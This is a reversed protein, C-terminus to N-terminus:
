RLTCTPVNDSEGYYSHCIRQLKGRNRMKAIHYNIDERLDTLKESIVATSSYFGFGLAAKLGYIQAFPISETYSMGIGLYKNQNEETALGLSVGNYQKQNSHSLCTTLALTCTSM